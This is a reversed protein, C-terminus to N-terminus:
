LVINQDKKVRAKKEVPAAKATARAKFKEVRGATDMVKAKGTYFPHCSSCVDVEFKDKTSGVTTKNGCVCNVEAASHYQPHIKAKM